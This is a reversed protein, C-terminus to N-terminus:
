SFHQNFEYLLFPIKSRFLGGIHKHRLLSLAERLTDNFLGGILRHQLLLFALCQTEASQRAPALTETKQCLSDVMKLSAFQRVRAVAQSNSLSPRCNKFTHLPLEVLTKYLMWNRLSPLFRQHHHHHHCRMLTPRGVRTQDLCDVFLFSM